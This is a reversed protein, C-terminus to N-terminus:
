SYGRPGGARGNRSREMREIDPPLRRHVVEEKLETASGLASYGIALSLVDDDHHGNEAESRGNDKVVFCELESIAHADRIDFGEGDQGHERIARALAEIIPERTKSSTHWGLQGTMRAERENYVQREYIVAGRLKLLEVLGRDANIEPVIMCGSANGYHRALRWVVEELIDIDWRCPSKIRAVVAPPVWGRGHEFYGARLVFVGHCDPDMGTVQSAGTMTDASILYRRGVRPSEYRLISGEEESTARWVVRGKQDELVGHEPARIGKRAMKLGAANFRRRGSRLFAKEWSEPYDQNFVEVSKKCENDISWRRWALQEWASFPGLMLGGNGAVVKTCSTGLRLVGDGDKWGFENLIDREGIYRPETDLSDEIALQEKKTLRMAGDHFEFWPAFVRVYSGSQLPAGALFADADLGDMWREYFDGSASNATTELIVCTDPLLPVCKLIGALVKRADKVGKEAWRAVETGLLFQFTGSRGAEGDAATEQVLKSGHSWKGVEENVSGENGWPFRDAAQYQRCIDFANQTQSYQAGIVCASTRKRRVDHYLEAVSFTTSGKQRPKLTLIRCAIGRRRCEARVAAVKEQLYNAVPTVVEGGKLVITGFAEWWTREDNRFIVEALKEEEQEPTLEDM